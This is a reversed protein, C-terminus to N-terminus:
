GRHVHTVQEVLNGRVSKLSGVDATAAGITGRPQVCGHQELSAMSLVRVVVALRGRVSGSGYRLQGEGLYMFWLTTLASAAFRIDGDPAPPGLRLTAV